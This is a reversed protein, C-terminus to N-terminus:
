ALMNQAYYCVLRVVWVFTGIVATVNRIENTVAFYSNFNYQLMILETNCQKAITVLTRDSHRLISTYQLQRATTALTINESSKHNFIQCDCKLFQQKAVLFSYPISVFYHSDCHFKPYTGSKNCQFKFKGHLIKM